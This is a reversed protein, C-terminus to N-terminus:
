QDPKDPIRFGDFPEAQIRRPQLPGQHELPNNGDEDALVFEVTIHGTFPDEISHETAYGIVQRRDQDANRIQRVAQGVRRLEDEDEPSPLPPLDWEEPAADM